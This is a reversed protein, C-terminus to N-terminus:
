SFAVSCSGLLEGPTLVNVKFPSIRKIGYFQYGNVSAQGTLIVSRLHMMDLWETQTVKIIKGNKVGADTGLLISDTM